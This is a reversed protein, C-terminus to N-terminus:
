FCPLAKTVVEFLPPPVANGIVKYKNILSSYQTEPFIFDKKFGQLCAAERFSFRRAPQDNVFRWEDKDVKEMQPSIPHLPMHRASSVITRSLDEWNQRRNRSMYYWHFGENYYESEDPWVALGELAEKITNFGQNENGHTPKPFEFELGLDKRIGVIFIRKRNQAVGFDAANLLQYKVNYGAEEFIKIQDSLLHTFTKRLMGSVNEVIFAKPRIYNLARGFEQYLYNVKKDAVRAGGQSFGQCPYCGVLLDSKPFHEIKKIDKLQYDTEPLNALYTDKAYPIIDNAMLVEFGAAKLGADSGGCGSFLSVATKM